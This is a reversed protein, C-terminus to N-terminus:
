KNQNAIADRLLSPVKTELENVAEAVKERIQKKLREREGLIARTKGMLLEATVANIDLVYDRGEIMGIIGFGKPVEYAIALVPTGATLAFVGSHIRTAIFIDTAGYLLRLRHPHYDGRLLVSRASPALRAVEEAVPIDEQAHPMLVSVAGLESAARATFDAMAQLYSRYAEGSDARGPFRWHRVTIGIRPSRLAALEELSLEGRTGAAPRDKGRPPTDLFALDPILTVREPPLRLVRLLYDRTIEERAALLHFRSLVAAALMRAPRGRIPGVSHGLAVVKKGLALAVLGMLFMRYLFLLQKPGGHSYFYSGGKMIILDSRAIREAPPRYSPPLLPLARGRLSSLLLLSWLSVLLRGAARANERLPSGGARVRPFPSGFLRDCCLRKVFLFASPDSVEEPSYDHNFLAVTAEPWAARVLGLTSEVIALDGKNADLSMNLISIEV